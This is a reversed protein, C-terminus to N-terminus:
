QMGQYEFYRQWYEIDAHTKINKSQLFAELASPQKTLLQTLERLLNSM